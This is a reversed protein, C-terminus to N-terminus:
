AQFVLCLWSISGFIKLVAGGRVIRGGDEKEQNSFLFSSLSLGVALWGSLQPLFHSEHLALVWLLHTLALMLM